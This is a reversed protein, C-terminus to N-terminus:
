KLEFVVMDLDSDGLNVIEHSQADMFLAEGTELDMVDVKGSPYTLQAKGGKLVYVVHDPHSHM